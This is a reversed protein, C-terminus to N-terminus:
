VTLKLLYISFVEIKSLTSFTLFFITQIRDWWKWSWLFNNTSCNVKPLFLLLAKGKCSLCVKGSMIQIKVALELVPAQLMFTLLFLLSKIFIGNPVFFLMIITPFKARTYLLASIRVIIVNSKPVFPTKMFDNENKNVKYTHVADVTWLECTFAFVRKKFPLRYCAEILFTDYCLVHNSFFFIPYNKYGWWKEISLIRTACMKHVYYIVDRPCFPHCRTSVKPHIKTSM